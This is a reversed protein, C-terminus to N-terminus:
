RSEFAAIVIRDIGTSQTVSIKCEARNTRGAAGIGMVVRDHVAAERVKVIITRIDVVILVEGKLM